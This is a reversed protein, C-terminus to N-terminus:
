AAVPDTTSVVTTAPRASIRPRSTSPSASAIASTRARAALNVDGGQGIFGAFKEPAASLRRLSQWACTNRPHRHFSTAAAAAHAHAAATQVRGADAPAAM